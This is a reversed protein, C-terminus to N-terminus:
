KIYGRDMLREIANPYEEEYQSNAEGLEYVHKNKTQIENNRACVIHSTKIFKGEEFRNSGYIEGSIYIRKEEPSILNMISKGTIYWNKIIM